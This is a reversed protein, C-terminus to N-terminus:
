CQSHFKRITDLTDQPLGFKKNIGYLVQKTNDTKNQEKYWAKLARQFIERDYIVEKRLCYVDTPSNYIRLDKLLQNRVMHMHKLIYNECLNDMLAKYENILLTLGFESFINDLDNKKGLLRDIKRSLLIFEMRILPEQIQINMQTELQKQKDYCKLKWQNGITRSVFGSIDKEVLAEKSGTVYLLNQEKNHLFSGCLLSFLHKCQCKGVMTDTMNLEIKEAESYYGRPFTKKLQCQIDRRMINIYRMDSLGFPYENTERVYKPPCVFLIYEMGVSKIVGYENGNPGILPIKGIPHFLQNSLIRFTCGDIGQKSLNHETVNKPKM